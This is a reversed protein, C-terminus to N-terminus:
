LRQFAFTQGRGWGRRHRCSPGLGEFIGPELTSAETLHTLAVNWPSMNVFSVSAGQTGSTMEENHFRM